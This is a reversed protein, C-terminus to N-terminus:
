AAAEADPNVAYGDSWLHVLPTITTVVDGEDLRGDARLLLLHKGAELLPHWFKRFADVRERDWRETLQVFKSMDNTNVGAKKASVPTGPLEDLTTPRWVVPAGPEIEVVLSRRWPRGALSFMPYISLPWFEGRHTAVLGAYVGFSAGLALFARRNLTDSSSPKAM